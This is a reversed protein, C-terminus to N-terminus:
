PSASSQTCLTVNRAHNIICQFRDMVSSPSFPFTDTQRDTQRSMYRSYHVSPITLFSVLQFGNPFLGVSLGL